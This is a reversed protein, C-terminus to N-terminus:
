PKVDKKKIFFNPMKKYNKLNYLFERFYNIVAKHENISSYEPLNAYEKTLKIQNKIGNFGHHEYIFQWSDLDANQLNFKTKIDTWFKLENIRADIEEQISCTYENEQEKFLTGMFKKMFREDKLTKIADKKNQIVPHALMTAYIYDDSFKNHELHMKIHTLEHIIVTAILYIDASKLSNDLGIQRRRRYTIAQINRNSLDEFHIKVVVLFMTLDDSGYQRVIKIADDIKLRDSYETM